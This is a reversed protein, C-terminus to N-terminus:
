VRPERPRIGHPWYRRAAVRGAAQLGTTNDCCSDRLCGSLLGSTNRLAPDRMKDQAHNTTATMMRTSRATCPRSWTATTVAAVTRTIVPITYAQAYRGLITASAPPILRMLGTRSWRTGHAATTLTSTTLATRTCQVGAGPAARPFTM